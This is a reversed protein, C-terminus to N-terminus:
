SVARGTRFCKRGAVDIGPLRIEHSLAQFGDEPKDAFNGPIDSHM